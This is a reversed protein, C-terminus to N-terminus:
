RFEGKVAVILWTNQTHPDRSINLSLAYQGAPEGQVHYLGPIDVRIAGFHDPIVLVAPANYTMAVTDRLQLLRDVVRAKTEDQFVTNRKQFTLEMQVSDFFKPMLAGRSDSEKYLASFFIEPITVGFQAHDIAGTTPNILPAHQAQAASAPPSFPSNTLHLPQPSALLPTPSGNQYPQLSSSSTYAAPPSPAQSQAFTTSYTHQVVAATLTSTQQGYATQVQLATLQQQVTGLQQRVSFSTTHTNGEWFDRIKQQMGRATCANGLGCTNCYERLADEKVHELIAESYKANTLIRNILDAKLGSVALGNGRLIAKLDEVILLNLFSEQKSYSM